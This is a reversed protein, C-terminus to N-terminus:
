ELESQEAPQKKTAIASVMARLAAHTREQFPGDPALGQASWEPGISAVVEEVIEGSKLREEVQEYFRKAAERMEAPFSQALAGTLTGCHAFHLGNLELTGLTDLLEVYRAYNKFFCPIYQDRGFYGGAANGVSIVSDPQILYSLAEEGYSPCALIKVELEDDLAVADGDRVIQDISLANKLETVDFEADEVQLAESCANNFKVIGELLEESDVMAKLQPSGLVVVDPYRERIKQVAGVHAPHASTLLLLEIKDDAELSEDLKSILLSADAALGANILIISEGVVLLHSSSTTTFQYVNDTLQTTSRIWM